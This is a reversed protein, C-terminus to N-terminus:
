DCNRNESASLGSPCVFQGTTVQPLRVIVSGHGRAALLLALLAPANRKNM